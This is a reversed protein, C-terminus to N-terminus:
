GESTLAIYNVEEGPQFYGAQEANAKYPKFALDNKFVIVCTPVSSKLPTAPFLSGFAARFQELRNAILRIDKESANGVLTFNKTRISIWKDAARASQPTLGAILLALALGTVVSRLTQHKM